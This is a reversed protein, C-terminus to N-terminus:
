HSTGRPPHNTVRLERRAANWFELDHSAGYWERWLSRPIDAPHSGVYAIQIGDPKRWFAFRGSSLITIGSPLEKSYTWWRVSALGQAGTRREYVTAGEMEPAHIPAGM